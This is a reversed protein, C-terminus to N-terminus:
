SLRSSLLFRARKKYTQRELAEYAKIESSEIQAELIRTFHARMAQRAASSDRNRLAQLIQNHEEERHSSDNQCVREYVKQLDPSEMRMKWMSDIVFIVMQNQTVRAITKHFAADAEDPTLESRKKDSMIAIYHELEIITKDSIIPAALAASEAEFLVRAETLELPDVRPLARTFFSDEDLVFAGSGARIEIYGQAQLTIKADRVSLRNVGFTEALASESPLRSGSPFVGSNILEVIEAAIKQYSGNSSM